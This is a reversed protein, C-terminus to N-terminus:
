LISFQNYKLWYYLDRRDRVTGYLDPYLQLRGMSSPKEYHHFRYKFLEYVKEFM